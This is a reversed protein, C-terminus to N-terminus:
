VQWSLELAMSSVMATSIAVRPSRAEKDQVKVAVADVVVIRIIGSSEEMLEAKEREKAVKAVLLPSPSSPTEDPMPVM